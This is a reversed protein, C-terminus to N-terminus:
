FAYEQGFVNVKGNVHKTKDTIKGDSGVIGLHCSGCTSLAVDVHGTPPLGHCSGCSANTPGGTWSPAFNAGAMVSDTYVYPTASTAKRIKWSGHCYTNSCKLTSSSYSPITTFSGKATKLSALTDNFAVEAPLTGLHGAANLQTPVTHCEQCKLTKGVTGTALHKQHAGVGRVGTSTEGQVSSPPAAAGPTGPTATFSGHCASCSEPSKPANSADVHCGSKTCTLATNGDGNYTAGHCTKCQSLPYSQNYLFAPHGSASKFGAPHPYLSHCSYCSVGSVGGTYQKSHCTSCDYLDYQAKKLVEGHFNASATTLWGEEHVKQSGSVAVPLEKNLDSCSTLMLSAIVLFGALIVINHKHTRM